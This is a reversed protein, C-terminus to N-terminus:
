PRVDKFPQTGLGKMAWARSLGPLAEFLNPKLSKPNTFDLVCCRGSFLRSCARQPRGNPDQHAM